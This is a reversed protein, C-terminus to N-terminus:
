ERWTEKRLIRSIMSQYVGFEKAIQPQTAGEERRKRIARVIDWTLIARGNKEGTFRERGLKNYNHWCNYSRTTWELNEIRNDQKNGNKHNAEGREPRPRDFAELVLRHIKCSLGRRGNVLRLSPYGDPSLQPTKIRGASWVPSDVGRKVRGMDSVEYVSEWGVVPKWKEIPIPRTVIFETKM